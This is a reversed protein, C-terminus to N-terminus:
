WSWRNGLRKIFDRRADELTNFYHGHAWESAGVVWRATVFMNTHAVQVLVLGATDEGLSVYALVPSGNIFAIANPKRCVKCCGEDPPHMCSGTM